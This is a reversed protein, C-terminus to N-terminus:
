RDTDQGKEGDVSVECPLEVPRVGHPYPLTFVFRAGANSKIPSEVWIRGGHAEIIGKCISLGLGTSTHPIHEEPVHYFKSFLYPHFEAPIAPGENAVSITAGTEDGRMAIEITSDSPAFRIANELLNAVVRDVQVYDAYALPLDTPWDLYVSFHAMRPSLRHLVARILEDLDCWDYKLTLAGGEIRSMDLLNSVLRNLRDAEEDITVLLDRHVTADMEVDQQLLATAAAKIAALPTRLDHSVSSLLASKFQDAEELLRVRAAESALQAREIVLGVQTAFTTLMRMTAPEIGAKAQRATLRLVGVPTRDATLPV